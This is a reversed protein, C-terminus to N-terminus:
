ISKYANNIALKHHAKHIFNILELGGERGGREIRKKKAGGGFGWMCNIRLRYREMRAKCIWEGKGWKGSM